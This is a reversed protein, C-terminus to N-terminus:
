GLAHRLAQIHRNLGDVQKRTMGSREILTDGLCSSRVLLDRGGSTLHVQVQREDSLSRQRTVLGARELRQVLPTVTSSELALRGAIGGITSGDEENLVTLVLYQPYTIGMEDLLPKYLRNIAMSTAYLTYCLHDTLLTPM